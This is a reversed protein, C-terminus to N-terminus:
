AKLVERIHLGPVSRVGDRRRIQSNAYVENLTVWEIPLRGAAIEMVVEILNVVEFTWNSRLSAVEGLDTRTRSLDAASGAAAKELREVEDEVDMAQRYFSEKAVVGTARASQIALRNAEQAKEWAQEQLRKREREKKELLALSQADVIRTLAKSLEDAIGKAFFKQIDAAAKDIPAKVAKRAVEVEDKMFDKIQGIFDTTDKLDQEDGVKPKPRPGDGFPETHDDIWGDIQNLLEDKRPYLLTYHRKLLALVDDVVVLKEPNIEALPDDDPPPNNDGIRRQDQQESM